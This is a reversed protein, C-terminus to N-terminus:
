PLDALVVVSRKQASIQILNQTWIMASDGQQLRDDDLRVLGNTVALFVRRSLLTEFILNENPRLRSLYIAVDQSLCVGATDGQGSALPVLGGQGPIVEPDATQSASSVGIERADLWAQWYNAPDSDSLNRVQFETEPEASLYHVGSELKSGHGFEDEIEIEGEQLFTIIEVPGISGSSWEAAPQLRTEQFQLL